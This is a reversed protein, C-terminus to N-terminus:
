NLFPDIMKVKWRNKKLNGESDKETDKLFTTKGSGWIGNLFFTKYNKNEDKEVIMNSFQKTAISTDIHDIKSNKEKM